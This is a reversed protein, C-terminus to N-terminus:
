DKAFTGLELLLLRQAHQAESAHLKLEVENIINKM